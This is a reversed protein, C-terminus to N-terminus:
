SKVGSVAASRMVRFIVPASVSLEATGDSADASLRVDLAQRKQLLGRM